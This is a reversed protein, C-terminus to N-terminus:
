SSISQNWSIKGLFTTLLNECNKCQTKPLRPLKALTSNKWDIESFWSLARKSYSMLTVNITFRLWAIIDTHVYHTIFSKYVYLNNINIAYMNRYEQFNNKM